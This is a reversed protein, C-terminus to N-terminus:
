WAFDRRCQWPCSCMSIMPRGRRFGDNTAVKNDLSRSWRTKRHRRSWHIHWFAKRLCRTRQRSLSRCSVARSRRLNWSGVEPFCVSVEESNCRTRSSLNIMDSRCAWIQDSRCAWHGSITVIWHGDVLNTSWFCHCYFFIGSEKDLDSFDLKLNQYRAFNPIQRKESRFLM